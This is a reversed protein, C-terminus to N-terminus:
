VPLVLAVFFLELDELGPLTVPEELLDLLLSDFVPEEFLSDDLLLELLEALDVDFDLLDEFPELLDPFDDLKLSLELEVLLDLLPDFLAVLDENIDEFCGKNRRLTCGDFSVANM